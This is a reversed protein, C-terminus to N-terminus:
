EGGRGCVASERERERERERVECVSSESWVCWERVWEVCVVRERVGCM